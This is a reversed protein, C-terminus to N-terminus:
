VEQMTIPWQVHHKAKTKTEHQSIAACILNFKPYLSKNDKVPYQQYWSIYTFLFLVMLHTFHVLHLERDFNFNGDLLRRHINSSTKTWIAREQNIYSSIARIILGYKTPITIAREQNIYSSIARIILGYKNSASHPADLASGMLSSCLSIDYSLSKGLSSIFRRWQFQIRRERDILDLIWLLWGHLISNCSLIKGFSMRDSTAASVVRMWHSKNSVHFLHHINWGPASFSKDTSAWEMYYHHSKPAPYSPQSFQEYRPQNVGLLIRQVSVNWKNYTKLCTSLLPPAPPPSQNRKIGHM